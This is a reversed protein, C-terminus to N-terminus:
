LSVGVKMYHHRPISDADVFGLLKISRAVAYSLYAEEEASVPVLQKGYQAICTSVLQCCATCLRQTSSVSVKSGFNCNEACGTCKSASRKRCRRAMGRTM